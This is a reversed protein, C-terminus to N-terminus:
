VLFILKQIKLDAAVFHPPTIAKIVTFFRLMRQFCISDSAFFHNDPKLGHWKKRPGRVTKDIVLM